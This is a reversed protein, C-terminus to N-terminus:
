GAACRDDQTLTLDRHGPIWLPIITARGTSSAVALGAVGAMLLPRHELVSGLLGIPASIACLIGMALLGTVMIRWEWKSYGNM